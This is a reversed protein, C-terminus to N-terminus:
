ANSANESPSDLPCSGLVIEGAVAALRDGAPFACDVAGTLLFTLTASTAVFRLSKRV